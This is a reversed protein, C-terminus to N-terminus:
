KWGNWRKSTAEPIRPCNVRLIDASKWDFSGGHAPIQRARRVADREDGSVLCETQMTCADTGGQAESYARPYVVGFNFRQRNKVASPRYPYLMYGEYLVAKVIGDVLAANMLAGNGSARETGTEIAEEWTPIGERVKYQYLKEFTDRHLALWASNPYYLDMLDKWVKVPLGTSRKRTGPFPLSRFRNMRGESLFCTGSFQFCLPLDGNTVGHFYKTAAVNFDFTCPVTIEALVSGPFAAGGRECSDVVHKAADPEMSGTRRLSREPRAQEEANYKRRTVEIQIQARLAVTHIIEEARIMSSECKSRCCRRRPTRCWKWAKSRSNCILCPRGRSRFRSENKLAAFFAGIERWVETGGSLGRWHTRILGVLKYCEDIPVLYYEAPAAGRVHGVRNVLLATM